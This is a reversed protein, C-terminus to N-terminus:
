PRLTASAIRVAYCNAVGPASLGAEHEVVTQFGRQELTKLIPAALNGEADHIEMVIQRIAPWHEDRIGSLIDGESGEADIKLLGIEHTHTEEILQSITRFRCVCEQKQGLASDVLDDLFRDEMDPGNPYRQRWQSLIGARLIHGDHHHDAHLGSMISYNPYFTFTADGEQGAIGCSHAVVRKGYRATNSTLIEYIRASPEFAQVLIEEFNEQVFMTFLGINAGIDWVCDGKLLTIGHRFYVRDEFIEKYVFTTEAANYHFIELGRADRFVPLASRQTENM